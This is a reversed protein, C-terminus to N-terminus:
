DYKSPYGAIGCYGAKETDLKEYYIYKKKDPEPNLISDEFDDPVLTWGDPVKDGEKVFRTEKPKWRWGMCEDAKCNVFEPKCCRMKVAQEPTVFPM